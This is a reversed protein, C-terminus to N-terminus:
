AEPLLHFRPEGSPSAKWPPSLCPPRQPVSPAGTRDTSRQEAECTDLRRQQLRVSRSTRSPGLLGAFELWWTRVPRRSQLHLRWRSAVHEHETEALTLIM